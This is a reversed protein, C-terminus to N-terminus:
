KNNQHLKILAPIVVYEIVDELVTSDSDYDPNEKNKNDYLWRLTGRHGANKVFNHNMLEQV